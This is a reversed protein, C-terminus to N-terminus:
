KLEWEYSIASLVYEIATETRLIRPGLGCSEFGQSKLYEVESLDIGGEPGIFVCIKDNPKLSKVIRKFNSSENNKADEEYCIIKKDYESFDINKLEKIDLVHSLKKRHSQESAEKAIKNFRELKSEKKKSDLKIVSRKSLVAIINSVGLETSHKIIEELKDGKPYGQYLDILFPLESNNQIAMKVMYKCINADVSVLVALVESNDDSVLIEDGSTYRMVNKIHHCDEGTIQNLNFDEKSVFYKQM